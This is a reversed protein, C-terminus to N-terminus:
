DGDGAEQLEEYEERSMRPCVGIGIQARSDTSVAVMPRDPTFVVEVEEGDAAQEVLTAWEKLLRPNFRVRRTQNNAYRDASVAGVTNMFGNLSVGEKTLAVSPEM